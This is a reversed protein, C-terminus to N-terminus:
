RVWDLHSAQPGEHLRVNPVDTAADSALAPLAAVHSRLRRRSKALPRAAPRRPHAHMRPAQPACRRLADYIIYAPDHRCLDNMISAYDDDVITAIRPRLINREHFQM